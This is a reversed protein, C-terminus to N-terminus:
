SVIVALRGKFLGVWALQRTKNEKLVLMRINKTKRHLGKKFSTKFKVIHFFCFFVDCSHRRFFPYGTINSNPLDLRSVKYFFFWLYLRILCLKCIKTVYVLCLLLCIYFVRKKDFLHKAFRYFPRRVNRAYARRWLSLHLVFATCKMVKMFNETWTEKLIIRFYFVLDWTCHLTKYQLIIYFETAFGIFTIVIMKSDELIREKKLSSNRCNIM